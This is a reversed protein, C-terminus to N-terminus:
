EDADADDGTRATTWLFAVAALVTFVTWGNILAGAWAAMFSLAGFLLVGVFSLAALACRPRLKPAPM